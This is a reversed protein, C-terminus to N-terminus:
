GLVMKEIIMPGTVPNGEFVSNDVMYTIHQGIAIIVSKLTQQKFLDKVSESSTMFITNPGERKIAYSLQHDM